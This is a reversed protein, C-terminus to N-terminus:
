RRDNQSRAGSTDCKIAGRAVFGRSASVAFETRCCEDVAHRLPPSRCSRRHFGASTGAGSAGARIELQHCSRGMLSAFEPLLWPAYSSVTQRFAELRSSAQEAFWEVDKLHKSTASRQHIEDVFANPLSLLHSLWKKRKVQRQFASFRKRSLARLDVLVRLHDLFGESVCTQLVPRRLLDLCGQQLTWLSALLNGSDVASVLEPALPALSRTDYWNLLHGRYRQLKSMTALTRITQERSSPFPSIASSARLRGQM